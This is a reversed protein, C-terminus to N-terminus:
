VNIKQSHIKVLYHSWFENFVTTSFWYSKCHNITSEWKRYNGLSLTVTFNKGYSFNWLHLINWYYKFCKKNVNFCYIAMVTIDTLTHARYHSYNFYCHGLITIWYKCYIINKAILVNLTWLKNQLAIALNLVM